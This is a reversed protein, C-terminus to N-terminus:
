QRKQSALTHEIGRKKTRRQSKHVQGGPIPNRQAIRHPEIHGSPQSPQRVERRRSPREEAPDSSLGSGIIAPSRHHIDPSNPCRRLTERPKSILTKASCNTQSMQGQQRSPSLPTSGRCSASSSPRCIFPATILPGSPFPTPPSPRPPHTSM